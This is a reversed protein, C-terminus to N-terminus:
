ARGRPPDVALARDRLESAGERLIKAQIKLLRRQTSRPLENARADLAGAGRLVREAGERLQIALKAPDNTM